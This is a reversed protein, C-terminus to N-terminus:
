MSPPFLQDPTLETKAPDIKIKLKSEVRQRAADGMNLPLGNNRSYLYEETTMRKGNVIPLVANLRGQAAAELVNAYRRLVVGDKDLELGQAGVLTMARTMAPDGEQRWPLAERGLYDLLGSNSDSVGASRATSYAVSFKQKQGKFMTDSNWDAVAAEIESRPADPKLRSTMYTTFNPDKKVLEEYPKDGIVRKVDEMAIARNEFRKRAATLQETSFNHAMAYDNIYDKAAQGQKIQRDYLIGKPKGDPGIEQKVQGTAPDVVPNVVSIVGNERGADISDLLENLKIQAQLAENKAPVKDPKYVNTWYTLASMAHMQMDGPPQKAVVSAAGEIDGANVLTNIKASVAEKQLREQRSEATLRMNIKSTLASKAHEKATTSLSSGDIEGVAKEVDTGYKAFLRDAEASGDVVAMRQNIQATLQDHMRGDIAGKNQEFYAQADKPRDNALYNSVVNSHMQTTRKNVEEAIQAQSWGQKSGLYRAESNIVGTSAKVAEPTAAAAGDSVAKDMRALSASTDAKDVENEEHRRIQGIASAYNSSWAADFKERALGSLNKTQADYLDKFKREAEQTASPGELPRANYGRYNTQIDKVLKDSELNAADFAQRARITENRDYVKFALDAVDGVARGLQGYAQAEAAGFAAAGPSINQSVQPLPKANVMPNTDPIRPM